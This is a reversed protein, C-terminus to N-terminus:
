LAFKWESKDGYLIVVRRLIIYRKGADQYLHHPKECDQEM